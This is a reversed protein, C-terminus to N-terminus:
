GKFLLSRVQAQLGLYAGRWTDAQTALDRLDAMLADVMGDKVLAADSAAQWGATATALQEELLLNTSRLQNVEAALQEQAAREEAAAQASEECQLLLDLNGEVLRQKQAALSERLAREDAAAQLAENRQLM